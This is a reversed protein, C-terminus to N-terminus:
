FRQVFNKIINLGKIHSKEPHFQVGVINKHEISSVFDYGYNTTTLILNNDNPVVHYSHTFYFRSENNFDNLILSKKTININNWGVHPIRLNNNDEKFNFKKTQAKIWGLGPVNGEESYETFLQMGLCIGLIPTKEKIVKKKLVNILGMKKLNTMVAAFHGVGPLILKNAKLIEKPDSSIISDIGIKNLKNQISRLNGMDYDVILIM